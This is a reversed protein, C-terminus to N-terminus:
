RDVLEVCVVYDEIFYLVISRAVPCCKRDACELWTDRLRNNLRGICQLERVSSTRFVLFCLVAPSDFADFAAAASLGMSDYDKGSTINSWGYGHKLLDVFPTLIM